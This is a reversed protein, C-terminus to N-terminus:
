LLWCSDGVLLMEVLFAEVAFTEVSLDPDM